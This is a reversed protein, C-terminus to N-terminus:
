MSYMYGPKGPFVPLVPKLRPHLYEHYNDAARHVSGTVRVM